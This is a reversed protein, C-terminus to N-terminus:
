DLYGRGGFRRTFDELAAAKTRAAAVLHANPLAELARAHEQGFSGASIIGVGFM